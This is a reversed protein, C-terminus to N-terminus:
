NKSKYNEEWFRSMSSFIKQSLAAIVLKYLTIKKILVIEISKLRAGGEDLRENMQRDM